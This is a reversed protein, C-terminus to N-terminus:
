SITQYIKDEEETLGDIGYNLKLFLYEKYTCRCKNTVGLRNTYEYIGRVESAVKNTLHELTRCESKKCRVSTTNSDSYGRTRSSVIWLTPCEQVYITTKGITRRHTRLIKM